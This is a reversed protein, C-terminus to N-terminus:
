KKEDKIKKTLEFTNDKWKVHYKGSMVKKVANANYPVPPKGGGRLYLAFIALGFLCAFLFILLGISILIKM